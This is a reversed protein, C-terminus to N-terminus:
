DEEEIIKFINAEEDNDENKYGNDDKNVYNILYNKKFLTFSDTIQNIFLEDSYKFVNIFNNLLKKNKLFLETMQEEIECYNILYENYNKYDINDLIKRYSSKFLMENFWFNKDLNFHFIENEDIQQVNIKKKCNIDFIGQNIKLNLLNSINENQQNIFTKYITIYIKGFNNNDDIFFDALFNNNSLIEKEASKIKVNNYYTIFDDFVGKNNWYIEDNKLRKKEAKKRTINNFYKQNILNLAKNFKTFNKLLYENNKGYQSNIKSKLYVKLVPYKNEEIYNLQKIIYKEDLYDTCYFYKYFPFEEINYNNDICKEKVLNIFLNNDKDNKLNILELLNERYKKIIKQIENELYDETKIINENKYILEKNLIDFLDVFINQMFDEISDINIESLEKKLINWFIELIEMWTIGKPLFNGFDIDDTILKAFFLHSYLIYNLLRYSIHKFNGIIKNNNTLINEETINVDKESKIIIEIYKRKFKDLTIYNIQELKKKKDEDKRIKKIEEENKFIRYYNERKVIKLDVKEMYSGINNLCEPCKIDLENKGPFGSPIYHYYFNKCLCIYCGENPKSKFHNIIQFYVPNIKIDNGPYLNKEKYNYKSIDYLSYYIGRINKSFLENLCYRYGFLLININENTINYNSKIENLKQPKYFLDIAKLLLNDEQFLPQCVNHYFNKQTDSDNIHQNSIVLYQSSLYFNDIGFTKIKFDKINIKENFNEKEYHKILQYTEEYYSGNITKIKCNITDLISLKNFYKYENLAYKLVNEKHGFFNINKNNNNYLIKYIYLQITKCISSDGNFIDKIKKPENLKINNDNLIKIFTFCFTKIYGLCFYKCIEKSKLNLKEPKEIYIDLYKICEKLINLPEDELNISKKHSNLISNYFKLSYCESLYLIIQQLVTNKYLNEELVKLIINDTNLIISINLFSNNINLYKELLIQFIDISKKIMDNKKLIKKLINCRYNINPIKKIEDSLIYRLKDYYDNDKEIEESNTIIKYIKEFNNILEESLSFNDNINSYKQIININERLFHKIKNIIEFNKSNKFLEIIKILEDIIYLENYFINLDECLNKLINNINKLANYYHNIEIQIDNKRNNNFENIKIEDITICCCISELILYFCENVENTFDINRKENNNNKSNKKSLIQEKIKIYFENENNDFIIKGNEFIKLIKIIFEKNSEMWIIKIILNNIANDSQMIKNEKKYRLKILLKILKHYICENNYLENESKYKKLYYIIYDDIILGHPILNINNFIFKHNNYVEDYVNNMLNEETEHFKNIKENDICILRRLMNENRLYYLTIANNIYNNIDEYFNYFGPINYYFLFKSKYLYYKDLNIGKLYKKIILKVQNKNLYIYHEKKITLLTTLINNDELNKFIIELYKDFIDKKIYEILFSVLDVQYNNIMNDKCIKEMIDKCNIEEKSELFKFLKGLIIEKIDKEEEIYNLIEAVYEEYTNISSNNEKLEKRLFIELTKNFEFDLNLEKKYLELISNIDNTFLDKLTILNNGNLNDIFIKNIDPDIYHFLFIRQNIEKILNRKIQIIIIYKNKDNNFHHLIYNCIYKIKKSDQQECIVYINNENKNKNNEIKHKKEDIIIKFQNESRIKSIFIIMEDNIGEIKTFISSFTYIISLKYKESDKQNLYDKLNLINKSFYKEKFINIDPLTPIIDQPLINCIKETIIDKIKEKYFNDSNSPKNNYDLKSNNIYYYILAQIEEFVWIILEDNFSNNFDKKEKHINKLDFEELLNNYIDKSKDNLLNDFNINIKEFRNLFPEDLMKLSKKDIVLIIKFKENVLAKQENFKGYFIKTYKRDEKLEFNRNYLDYLFSHIQNFNEIIILKDEELYNQIESKKDFIYQNNNDDIFPSEEIFIIDKFPNQIKIHNYIISKLSSQIGLLLYRSNRDNINDNLCCNYNYDKIKSEDLKLNDNDLLLYDCQLNYLIKFLLVSNIKIIKSDKYLNFKKLINKISKVRHNIEDDKLEIDLDFEYIIGGFNREIHRTIVTIIEDYNNYNESKILDNAIGKIFYYFDIIGHFDSKIKDEKKMLDQFEKSRIIFEYYIKPHDSDYIKSSNFSSHGIEEDSEIKNYNNNHSNNKIREKLYKKFVNLEKIFQLQKKYEFYTHSLNEFVNPSKIRLSLSEAISSSIDNLKDLNKDLDPISLLWSRNITTEDLSYNSIGIFCIRKEKEYKELLFHLSNLPNTKSREALGLENFLILYIPLELKKNKYYEIQKSAKKFLKEIDKPNTKESGLFHTQIVEPFQQFFKNKSNKGKMSNIILQVSLSKGSGPKGIIILPIKILVSIFIVFLNEKLISTKGIGKSIEIQNILYDQEIEIFDRFNNIIKESRSLIEDKLEKNKIQDILFQGREEMKEKNILQLLIERLTIEFNNRKEDNTLRIFYCIYISCILSRLKNNKINNIRNEYNNKKTFYDNFFEVCKVFRTIEFLSNTFTDCNEKLYIQCKLNIETTIKLLDKEEEKFLKEIINHIYKKEDEENIIGINLAYYLLSQPLLQIRNLNEENNIISFVRQEKKLKIKRYPNCVGILYINDNIKNGNYTRNIFIEKILSFSSCNNIDDFNIWLEQAKLRKAKENIEEIRQFINEETILPNINIIELNAKGNYLIRNLVNILESKGCGTEGILIVPVNARIRYYLFVMKIFNDKTIVLNNDNEKLISLLSKLNGKDKEVDNPLNFIEKLKKLYYKSNEFEKSDLEKINFKNFEIKEGNLFLPFDFNNKSLLDSFYVEFLKYIYDKINYNNNQQTLLRTLGCNVFYKITKTFEPMYIKKLNEGDEFNIFSHNFKSYYSIFYKIFLNIQHYSYREEGIYKLIFDKIKDNLDIGLNQNFFNITEKSFDPTPMNEFSIYKKNFLDLIPFKISYDEFCNPIEIYITNKNPIYIIDEKYVYFKTILFSFLFENMLEIEKTESLDLHIVADKNNDIIKLFYLLKNYIVNKTLLGGFPFYYYKENKDRAIKKIIETKGLGCIESAIVKINGSKSKIKNKITDITKIPENITYKKLNFENLNNLFTRIINNEEEYVLAIFSDLYYEVHKKDINKNIEENYKQKKYSLLQSIYICMINQQYESFSNNIEIVFLTHYNCLIARFLFVQIEEFSTENSIFLINQAIPLQNIKDIFLNIIFIEKSSNGCEYLFIGKDPSSLIKMQNYHNELTKDNNVFLSLIYSDISEFSDRYYEKFNIYDSTKRSVLKNGEKIIIDNDKINLIYRIITLTSDITNENELHKMINIFQKGYLFRLYIKNKYVFDLQSIYTNKARFLFDIINDLSKAEEGLYYQGSQLGNKFQIKINITISLNSGKNRLINMYEIIKKLNTILNKFFIIRKYKLQLKDYKENENKFYIRNKLHILKKLNISLYQGKDHYLFEESDQFITFSANNIIKIIQDYISESNELKEDWEIIFRYIQSYKEFKEIIEQSLNNIYIFIQNNEKMKQMRIIEKKCEKAIDLDSIKIIRELPDLKEKLKDFDKTLLFDISDKKNYLYSFFKNYYEKNQFDYIKNLKLEMLQTKIESFDKSSLNKYKKSLINNGSKNNKGFIEFFFLISNIDLEYIQSKSLITLDSIINEHKIYYFEILSNIFINAKEENNSIKEKIKNIIEKYNHYFENVNEKEKLFTNIEILKNYALNFTYNEDRSFKMEYIENFLSFLKVKNIINALDLYKDYKKIEKKKELLEKITQNNKIINNIEKIIDEYTKKYYIIINDRIYKLQKIYINIENIQKKLISYEHNIDFEENIINILSLRKKIISENNQLFEELTKKNINGKIDIEIESLIKFIKEFDKKNVKKIKGKEFLSYFLELKIDNYKSFFENKSFLNKEFLGKLFTKIFTEGEKQKSNYKGELCDILYIINNIDNINNVKDIFYNVIFIKIENNDFKNKNDEDNYDGNNKIIKIIEIFILAILKKPLKKIKNNIFQFKNEKRELSIIIFTLEAFIKIIENSKLGTLSEIEKKFINDYKNELSNLFINKIKINEINILKIIDFNSITKIRSILKEIYENINEKLILEFNMKRFRQIFENELNIENFDFLDLFNSSLKIPYKSDMYINIYDLKEENTLYNNNKLFNTIMKDLVFGFEDAEFYENVEKLLNFIIETEFIHHALEYYKIFAERLKQCIFINGKTPKMFCRLLYKWFDKTFYAFFIKKGISYEIISKIKDINKSAIKEKDDEENEPNDILNFKIKNDVKIIYKYYNDYKDSKIIENIAEKNKELVGIFIELDEIYNLAVTLFSFKKYLITYIFFKNFFLINQKIPKVLYIYYNLLIEYLAEPKRKFLEDFILLFKAYNFLNLYCLIIGYFEIFSYNNRDILENAESAIENMQSKYKELDTERNMKMYIKKKKANTTVEIFINFLYLCLDKNQYIKIFLPILLSFNQKTSYLDVMDKYLENIKEGEGNQELAIIFYDLKKDYKIIDQDIRRIYDFCNKKRIDLNVNFIFTTDKSNNFSINYQYDIIEFEFYYSKLKKTSKSIKFIKYYYKYLDSENIISSYFCQPNENKNEPSVLNIDKLENKTVPYIVCFYISKNILPSCRQFNNMNKINHTDWKSIYPLNILSSCGSFMSNMDNVNNINWRSLNPLSILSLCGSFMYNIDNVNNTNWRSLDPLSILSSCGSFMSNMNNVNNTKWKSIDPLSILSSCGYFISNMIKVNNTKWKSIDPLSILSSCGYFISDMIKVNNTDWKSIDPLSILSSCGYFMHSMNKLSSYYNRKAKNIKDYKSLFFELTGLSIKYLNNSYNKMLYEDLDSYLFNNYKNTIESDLYKGEEISKDKIEQNNIECNAFEFLSKCDSFMYSRDSIVELEYLLIEFKKNKKDEINIDKFLFYSQLPIIKNKYIILCKNSNNTVFEEGFIKIKNKNDIKYILKQIEHTSFLPHDIFKYMNKNKKFKEIEYIQLSHFIKHIDSIHNYCILKIKLKEIKNGIIYNFLGKLPYLKNKFIIKYKYKNKEVFNPDFIRFRDKNENSYVLKYIKM